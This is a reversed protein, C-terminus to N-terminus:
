PARSARAAQVVNLVEVPVGLRADRALEEAFDRDAVRDVRAALRGVRRRRRPRTPLASPRARARRRFYSTAEVAVAGARLSTESWMRRSSSRSSLAAASPAAAAASPAAAPPAAAAAAASPAAPVAASPAAAASSPATAREVARRGRRRGVAGGLFRGRRRRRLARLALRRPPALLQVVLHHADGVLRRAVARRVPEHVLIHGVHLPDVQARELDDALERLVRLQARAPRPVHEVEVRAYNPSSASGGGRGRLYMSAGSPSSRSISTLALRQLMTGHAMTPLVVDASSSTKSTWSSRGGGGGLGLLLLLLGALAAGQSAQPARAFDFFVGGPVLSIIGKM